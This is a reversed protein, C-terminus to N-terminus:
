YRFSSVSVLLERMATQIKSLQAMRLKWENIMEKPANSARDFIHEYCLINRASDIAESAGRRILVNVQAITQMLNLKYINHVAGQRDHYPTSMMHRMCGQFRQNANLVAVLHRTLPHVSPACGHKRFEKQTINLADVLSQLCLLITHYKSLIVTQDM